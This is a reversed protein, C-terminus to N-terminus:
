AVLQCGMARIAARDREIAALTCNGRVWDYTKWEFAWYYFPGRPSPSKLYFPPNPDDHAPQDPPRVYPSVMRGLIQWWADGEVDAPFEGLVFDYDQMRGGPQYDEGGEGVPIHGPDHEIGLCGDPLAARFVKGFAVVQEPSWGYFVGDFGIVYRIYQNLPGMAQAILPFQEMLWDYGYTYGVPDNYAWSGDPNKVSFNGDGALHLQIYFGADVVGQLFTALQSWGEQYWDRGAGITPPIWPELYAHSVALIMVQDGLQRKMAYVSPHDSVPLTDFEVEFWPYTGLSTTVTAGQFTCRATLLQERTPVAVPGSQGSNLLVSAASSM